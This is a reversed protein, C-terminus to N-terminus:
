REIAFKVLSTSGDTGTIRAYYVGSAARRAGDTLGDWIATGAANGDFSFSRVREGALNLILVSGYAPLRDFTIGAADFRGGSGPKWPVPYVRVQALSTGVTSPAFMGFVSFHPTFVTVRRSGTDVFTPLAEWRNITTNLTYVQIASAPLPPNTNDIINDGNGDAYPM